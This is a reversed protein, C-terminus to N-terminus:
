AGRLSEPAGAQGFTETLPHFKAGVPEAALAGFTFLSLPFLGLHRM